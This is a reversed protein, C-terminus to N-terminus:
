SKKTSTSVSKIGFSVYSIIAVILHTIFWASWGQLDYIWVCILIRPIIISSFIDAIFPTNNLPLNGFIWWFLLTLRPFILSLLLFWIGIDNM